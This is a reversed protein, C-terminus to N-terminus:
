IVMFILFFLWFIGLSSTKRCIAIKHLEFDLNQINKVPISFLNPRRFKGIEDTMISYSKVQVM